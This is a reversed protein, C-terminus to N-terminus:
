VMQFENYLQARYTLDALAKMADDNRGLSFLKQMLNTLKAEGKAEGKAEARAEGIAIGKEIGYNEIAASYNCVTKVDEVIDDTMAIHYEDELVKQREEIDMNRDFYLSLYRILTDDNNVGDSDLTIIITELLDYHKKDVNLEGLLNKHRIDFASITSKGVKSYPCIWISYVKQIKEYHSKELGRDKQASILRCCYYIGRSALDYGLGHDNQIEVNIILSVIKDTRPIRVQFVIDYIVTGENQTKDESNLQQVRANGDLLKESDSQEPQSQEGLTSDSQEVPATEGQEPEGQGSQEETASEEPPYHDILENLDIGEIERRPFEPVNPDAPVDRDVPVLGVLPNDVFCENMIKEQPMGRFEPVCYQLLPVLVAKHGFLNKVHKDLTTKDGANIMANAVSTNM